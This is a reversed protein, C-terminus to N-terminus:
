VLEVEGWTALKDGAIVLVGIVGDISKAYNIATKLDNPDKVLNGTQTAVCDALTADHAIITAADAIGFSVSHGVTGSSTCIGLPMNAPDIRLNIKGSFPSNGAYISLRRENDSKIFIDGGNEVIIQSCHELLTRGTYEAIAGAVGAMPGVGAIASKTIMEKALDPATDDMEIPVFSDKFSSNKDIYDLLEKRYEYVVKEAEDKLMRDCFILLDTEFIKVEFQILDDSKIWNRYFRHQYM